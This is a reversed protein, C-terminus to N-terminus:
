FYRQVYMDWGRTIRIGWPRTVYGAPEIVLRTNLGRMGGQEPRRTGSVTYVMPTDAVRSRTGRASVGLDKVVERMGNKYM